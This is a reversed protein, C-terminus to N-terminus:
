GSFGEISRRVEIGPSGPLGSEAMANTPSHCLFSIHDALYLLCVGVGEESVSVGFGRPLPRNADRGNGLSYVM